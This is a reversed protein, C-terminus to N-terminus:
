KKKKPPPQPPHNNSVLLLSSVALKSIGKLLEKRRNEETEIVMRLFYYRKWFLAYEVKEPVLKEMARRLEVYKELDKSIDDTKKEVNFDASWKDYESSAPDKTFNDQSSHIVHLRADFRTSHIVRKGDRDKSEYLIDKKGAKTEEESPPAISVADKLFNRLNTGFKLLAEDAADEAKEIDKLRKAAETKLRSIISESELVERDTQEKTTARDGESTGSESPSALGEGTSLPRSRTVLSSKLDTLGKLAEERVATAEEQAGQYLSEGQKRVAGWLGGLKTGWPSASFSRYAEQFETNLSGGPRPQSEGPKPTESRIVEEQIHDYAADM